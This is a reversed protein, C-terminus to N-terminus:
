NQQTSNRAKGGVRRKRGEDSQGSCRVGSRLLLITVLRLQSSEANLAVLPKRTSDATRGRGTNANAELRLLQNREQRPM